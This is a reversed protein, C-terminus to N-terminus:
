LSLRPARRLLAVRRRTDTSSPNSEAPRTEEVHVLNPFAFTLRPQSAAAWSDVVFTSVAGACRELTSAFGTPPVCCLLLVPRDGSQAAERWATCVCAVRALFRQDPSLISLLLRLGASHAAEAGGASMSHFPARRRM